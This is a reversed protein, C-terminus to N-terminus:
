LVAKKYYGDFLNRNFTNTKNASITINGGPNNITQPLVSESDSNALPYVIVALLDKGGTSSIFTNGVNQTGDYVCVACQREISGDTISQKDVANGVAFLNAVSLEIDTEGAASITLTEPIGVVSLSYHSFDYDGATPNTSGTVPGLFTQSVTDYWGVVSDTQRICPVGKFRLGNAGEVEINGYFTGVFKASTGTTTTTGIMFDTPTTFEQQTWTSPEENGSTGTPTIEMDYRKNAISYSNYAGNKYRLYKATSSNSTYYSYNNGSASGSYAGIVNCATTGISYAFRLTDAGTLRFNPVTFYCNNNMAMSLIRIYGTPLETDTCVIEGNNCVIPVPNVLTPTGNQSCFGYVKLEDISDHVALPLSASNGENGSQFLTRVTPVGGGGLTVGQGIGEFM